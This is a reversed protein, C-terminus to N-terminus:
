TTLLFVVTMVATPALAGLFLNLPSVGGPFCRSLISQGAPNPANAIVTLGGGIVAGSVVAYKLEPTLGPVLSALYTIAANDNFATLFIAGFKLPMESLSGLVPAIWWQQLSGHVVLGALFFGVLVPSRLGIPDQHHATAQTFALFVLFGGLFLPVYHATLVTWALAGVHVATIWAPVRDRRQTAHAEVVDEESPPNPGTALAKFERRFVAYYLVNSIVIGIAAKWGFHQLMFPTDWGWKAAVMLVPPAAFHTLTGGVSINVFLLGLTAYRLRMSPNFRYFNQLLLLAAITMAAPETIFSGLLPALTLISFWWALPTGGGLAAVRGLVSESLRLIPRTAAIAMIVVVFLPETYKVGYTVYNQAADWGKAATIAALLPIVWLGFVAEIEGLFHLLEAKFSVPPRSGPRLGGSAELARLKAEHEERAHHAWQLIKPSCFTHLIALLFIGSAVLNFPQVGVRHKLVEWLSLGQEGATYAELPLPFTPGGSGASAAALPVSCAAAALAVLTPRFFASM